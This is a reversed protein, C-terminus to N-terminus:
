TIGNLYRELKSRSRTDLTSIDCYESQFVGMVVMSIHCYLRTCHCSCLSSLTVMSVRLHQKRCYLKIAMFGDAHIMQAKDIMVVM